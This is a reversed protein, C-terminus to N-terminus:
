KNESKHVAQMLAKLRLSAKREVEAMWIPDRSTMAVRYEREDTDSGFVSEARAFSLAQAKVQEDTMPPANRAAEVLERLRDRDPM